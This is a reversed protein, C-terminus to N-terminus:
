SAESAVRVQGEREIQSKDLKDDLEIQCRELEDGDLRTQCRELEDGDLRTQCRRWGTGM